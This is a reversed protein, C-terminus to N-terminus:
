FYLVFPPSHNCARVKWLDPCTRSIHTVNRGRYEMRRRADFYQRVINGPQAMELQFTLRRLRLLDIRELWAPAQCASGGSMDVDSAESRGVPAAGSRSSAGVVAGAVTLSVSESSARNTAADYSRAPTLSGGQAERSVSIDQSSVISLCRQAFAAAQSPSLGYMSSVREPRLKSLAKLSQDDHGDDFFVQLYEYAGIENLVSFLVPAAAEDRRRKLYRAYWGAADAISSLPMGEKRVLVSIYGQSVGLAAAVDKQSVHTHEASDSM